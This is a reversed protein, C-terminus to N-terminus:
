LKSLSKEPTRRKVLNLAILTLIGCAISFAFTVPYGAIDALWGGLFPALITSPAVLTNALGIFAPREAENGFELAMAM